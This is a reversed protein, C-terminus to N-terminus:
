RRHQHSQHRAIHAHAHAHTHGDRKAPETSHDAAEATVTVTHVCTKKKTSLTTAASSVPGVNGTGKPTTTLQAIISSSTTSSVADPATGSDGDSGVESPSATYIPVAASSGLSTSATASVASSAGVSATTVADSGSYSMGWGALPNNGPLVTLNGTIVEDIPSAVTCSTTQDRVKVGACKDMGLDGANCNDIISQLISVDWAAM